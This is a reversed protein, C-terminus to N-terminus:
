GQEPASFSSIIDPYATLQKLQDKCWWSWVGLQRYESTALAGMWDRQGEVGAGDSALASVYDDWEMWHYMAVEDAYPVPESAARAFYVPCYEHEIIGNYPPTQYTYEPLVLTINKASMGLEYQLRRVIADERSEGPFPHGCCSNTWVEPWVKKRFARQTVLLRGDDNFVYVSFAAHLRTHVHHAAYKEETEGTPVDHDDVYYILETM